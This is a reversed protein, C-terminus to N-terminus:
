SWPSSLVAEGTALWIRAQDESVRFARMARRCIRFALLKGNKDAKFYVQRATKM